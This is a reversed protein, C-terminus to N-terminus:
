NPRVLVYSSRFRVGKIESVDFSSGPTVLKVRGVAEAIGGDTTTEKM